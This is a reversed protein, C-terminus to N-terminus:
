GAYRIEYWVEFSGNMNHYAWGTEWVWVKRGLAGEEYGEADCGDDYSDDWTWKLDGSTGKLAYTLWGSYTYTEGSPWITWSAGSNANIWDPATDRWQSQNFSKTGWGFNYNTKNSVHFTISTAATGYSALKMPKARKEVKSEVVGEKQDDKLSQRHADITPGQDEETTGVAANDIVVPEAVAAASM